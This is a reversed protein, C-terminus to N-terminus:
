NASFISKDQHPAHPEPSLALPAGGWTWFSTGQIKPAWAQHIHDPACFLCEVSQIYSDKYFLTPSASRFCILQNFFASKPPPPVLNLLLLFCVLNHFFDSFISSM